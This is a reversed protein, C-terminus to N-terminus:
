IQFFGLWNSRCLAGRYHQTTVLVHDNDPTDVNAGREMLLQAVGFGEKDCYDEYKKCRGGTTRCTAMQAM